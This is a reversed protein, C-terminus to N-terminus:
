IKKLSLVFTTLTRNIVETQGDTQPHAITSFLLKTGFKNWLTCWFHILFKVDRDSFIKGLCDM